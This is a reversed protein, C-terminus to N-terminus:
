KYSKLIEISYSLYTSVLLPSKESFPLPQSQTILTSALFFFFFEYLFLVIVMIQQTSTKCFILTDNAFQLPMTLQYSM